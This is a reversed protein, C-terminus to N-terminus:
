KSVLFIGAAIIAIASIKQMITGFDKKERIIKPMWASFILGLIFIFVYEISILANVITVSAAALSAANEKFFSGAGGLIKALIFVLGSKKEEKEPKKFKRLSALIAKRWVPNLFFSAAGLFAGLRTWIFVNLFNDGCYLYKIIVASLALFFGALISFYFGKFFLQKKEKSPEFSILLGGLILVSIGSARLVGLQEDLFFMALFFTTIPIIAGVTPLVRSAESKKVAFFLALMGYIFIVGGIFSFIIRHFGISHFGIPFFILAFLGLTGSYFAYIAPHSVKKSSLLFKDLIIELALLFYALIAILLWM